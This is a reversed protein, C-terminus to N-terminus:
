KRQPSIHNKQKVQDDFLILILLITEDRLKFKIVNLM